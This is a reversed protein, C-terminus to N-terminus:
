SFQLLFSAAEGIKGGAPLFLDQKSIGRLNRPTKSFCLLASTIEACQFLRRSAKHPQKLLNSGKNTTVMYKDDGIVHAHKSRRPALRCRDRGVKNLDQTQSPNAIAQVLVDGQLAVGGASLRPGRHGARVPWGNRALQDPHASSQINNGRHLQGRQLERPKCRQRRLKSNLLHQHAHIKLLGLAPFRRCSSVTDTGSNLRGPPRHGRQQRIAQTRSVMNNHGKSRSM